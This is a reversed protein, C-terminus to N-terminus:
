PKRNRAFIGGVICGIGLLGLMSPEPVQTPPKSHKFQNIDVYGKHKPEVCKDENFGLNYRCPHKDFDRYFNPDDVGDALSVTSVLLLSILLLKKM